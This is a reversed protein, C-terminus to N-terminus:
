TGNEVKIKEYGPIDSCDISYAKVDAQSKRGLCADNNPSTSIYMNLFTTPDNYDALWSCRAITFGLQKRTQLFTAWEQNELTLNVGVSAFVSQIYEAIAKHGENTNYSYTIPPFNTINGSEDFNYYKHLIELAESYNKEVGEKSTDYYGYYPNGAKGAMQYFQNDKSDKIGFPVFSSAPLNGGQVVNECIYNRDTM